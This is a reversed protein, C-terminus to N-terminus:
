SRPHPVGDKGVGELAALALPLNRLKRIVMLQGKAQFLEKDNVAKDFAMDAEAQMKDLHEQVKKWEVAGNFLM